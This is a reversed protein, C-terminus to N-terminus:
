RSHWQWTSPLRIGAGGRVQHGQTKKGPVVEVQLCAPLYDIGQMSGSRSGLDVNYCAPPLPLADVELTVRHHTGKKLNVSSGPDDTEYTLLRMGELTSFGLGITAEDIDAHVEFDISVKVSETHFLPFGTLWEIRTIRLKTGDGSGRPFEKL